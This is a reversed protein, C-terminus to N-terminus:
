PQVGVIYVQLTLEPVPKDSKLQMPGWRLKPLAAELTKVYRVLEPYSGAVRLEMGRRTLGQPPSATPTISSTNPAAAPTAPPTQTPAADSRLTGASLLTLGDQRRLFEMLVQELAPGGADSPASTQIELNVADIKSQISELEKRMAVAEDSPRGTAQLDTRLRNLETNQTAFTQVLQRQAQQAPSLWLSDAAAICCVLVSLFLFVRERLSLADIRAAYKGWLAKV